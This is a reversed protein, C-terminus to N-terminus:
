DPQVTSFPPVKIVPASSVAFGQNGNSDEAVVCVYYVKGTTYSSGSLDWEFSQNFSGIVGSGFDAGADPAGPSKLLIPLYIRFPSPATLFSSTGGPIPTWGTLTADCAPSNEPLLLEEKEQFYLVSTVTGGDPDSVNWRVTYRSEPPQSTVIEGTLYAFDLYFFNPSDGSPALTGPVAWNEHPWIGFAKVSSGPQGWDWPNPSGSSNLDSQALDFFLLCWQGYDCDPQAHFAYPRSYRRFPFAEVLWNDGWQSAYLIRGNTSESGGEGPQHNAILTRYLFYRYVNSPISVDSDVYFASALDSGEPTEGRLASGYTDGVSPDVSYQVTQGSSNPQKWVIDDVSNMDWVNDLAAGADGIEHSPAVITVTPEDALAAHPFMITVVAAAVLLLKVTKRLEHFM